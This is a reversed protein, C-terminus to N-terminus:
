NVQNASPLPGCGRQGLFVGCAPIPLTTALISKGVPLRHNCHRPDYSDLPSVSKKRDPDQAALQALCAFGYSTQNVNPKQIFVLILCLSDQGMQGHCSKLVLRLSFLRDTQDVAILFRM